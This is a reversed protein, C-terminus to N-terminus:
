DDWCFAMFSRPLVGARWRPRARAMGLLHPPPPGAPLHPKATQRNKEINTNDNNAKKEKKAKKDKKAKEGNKEQKEKKTKEGKEKKTKKDKEEPKAGTKAM